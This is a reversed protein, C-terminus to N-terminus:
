IAMRKTLLAQHRYTGGIPEVQGFPELLQPLEGAAIGFVEMDIDKSAEGSDSLPLHSDIGLLRDRVWGGVVLARGGRARVEQAIDAVMPPTPKM